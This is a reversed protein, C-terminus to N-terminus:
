EVILKKHKSITHDQSSVQFVGKVTNELQVLTEFGTTITKLVIRGLMDTVIIQLPLKSNTKITFSGTQTPNPYVMFDDESHAPLMNSTENEPVEMKYANINYCNSSVYIQKQVPSDEPLKYGYDTSIATFDAGEEVEFGEGLEIEYATLYLDNTSTTNCTNINYYDIYCPTAIVKTNTATIKNSASLFSPIPSFNTRGVEVNAYSCGYEDCGTTQSEIVPDSTAKPYNENNIDLNQTYSTYQSTHNAFPPLDFFSNAYYGSAITPSQTFDPDYDKSFYIPASDNSSGKVKLIAIVRVYVKMHEPVTLTMGKLKELAVFPTGIQHKGNLDYRHLEMRGLEIERNIPNFINMRPNHVRNNHINQGSFCTKTVWLWKEDDEIQDNLYSNDSAEAISIAKIYEDNKFLDFSGLNEAILAATVTVLELGSSENVGYGIDNKITCSKYSNHNLCSNEIDVLYYYSGYQSDYPSEQIRKGNTFGIVRNYQVFEIQPTNMINFFGLPCNYYPLIGNTEPISSNYPVGPVQFSITVLKKSSEISGSLQLNYETITPRAPAPAPPTVEAPDPEPAFLGIISGIAGVIPGAFGAVKNVVGFTKWFDTKTDSKNKLYTSLQHAKRQVGNLNGKTNLDNVIDIATKNTKSRADEISGLGKSVKGVFGSIKNLTNGFQDKGADGKAPAKGAYNHKENFEEEDETRSTGTISAKVTSISFGYLDINLKSKFYPHSTGKNFIDQIYPDYTINFDAAVWGSSQPKDITTAIVTKDDKIPYKKNYFYDPAKGSSGLIATRNVDDEFLEVYYKQYGSNAVVLSNLWIFARLIGTYKNYLIFYPNVVKGCQGFNRDILVWGQSKKWDEKYYIDTIKPDSTPNSFPNSISYAKNEGSYVAHWQRVLNTSLQPEWEWTSNNIHMENQYEYCDGVYVQAFATNIFLILLLTYLRM